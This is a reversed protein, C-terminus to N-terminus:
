DLNQFRNLQRSIIKQLVVFDMEPLNLDDKTIPTLRIQDWASQNLKIVIRNSFWNAKQHYDYLNLRQHKIIELIFIKGPNPNNQEGRCIENLIEYILKSLHNTQAYQFRYFIREELWGIVYEEVSSPTRQIEYDIKTSIPIGLFTSTKLHKNTIQLYGHQILSAVTVSFVEIAYNMFDDLFHWSDLEFKEKPIYALSTESSLLSPDIKFHVPL